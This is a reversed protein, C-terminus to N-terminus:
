RDPGNRLSEAPIAIQRDFVLDRDQAVRIPDTGSAPRVRNARSNTRRTVCARCAPSSILENTGRTADISSWISKTTFCCM